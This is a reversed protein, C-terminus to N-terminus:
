ANKDMRRGFASCSRRECLRPASDDPREHDAAVGEAGSSAGEAGRGGWPAGRIAARRYVSYSCGHRRDRRHGVVGREDPRRLPLGRADVAAGAQEPRADALPRRLARRAGALQPAVVGIALEHAHRRLRRPLRLRAAVRARRPAHSLLHHRITRAGARPSARSRTRRVGRRASPRRRPRRRDRVSRRRARRAPRTRAVRRDAPAGVSVADIVFRNRRSLASDISSCSGSSVMACRAPAARMACCTSSAGPPPFSMQGSTCTCRLAGRVAVTGAETSFSM